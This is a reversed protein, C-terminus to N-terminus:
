EIGSILKRPVFLGCGMHRHPGLGSFQVQMSDEDRLQHLVVPAGRLTEAGAGPLEGMRGCIFRQPLRLEELMRAVRTQHELEDSAGTAVFPAGLTPQPVLGRAIGRGVAIPEGDIVLERGALSMLEGSRAQPVRVALRARRPLLFVGNSLSARIELPGALPESELWPLCAVLARWLDRQYNLSLRTGSIEFVVDVMTSM